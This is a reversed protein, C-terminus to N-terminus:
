DPPTFNQVSKEIRMFIEALEKANARWEQMEAMEKIAEESEPNALYNNVIAEVADQNYRERVIAAIIAARTWIGPELTVSQYRFRYGSEDTEPLEEINFALTRQRQGLTMKVEVPEPATPAYIWVM